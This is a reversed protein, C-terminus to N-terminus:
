INSMNAYNEKFNVNTRFTFKHANGPLARSVANYQNLLIINGSIHPLWLVPGDGNLKNLLFGPFTEM